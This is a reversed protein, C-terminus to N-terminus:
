LDLKLCCYLLYLQLTTHSKVGRNFQVLTRESILSSNNEQLIAHSSVSKTDGGDQAYDKDSLQEVSHLSEEEEEEEITDEIIMESSSIESINYGGAQVISSSLLMVFFAFFTHRIKNM